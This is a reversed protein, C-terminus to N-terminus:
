DRRVRWYEWRGGVGDRAWEHRSRRMVCYGDEWWDGEVEVHPDGDSLETVRVGARSRWWRNLDAHSMHLAGPCQARIMELAERIAERCAPVTALYIPHFFMCMTTQWFAADSVARSLWTLDVGTEPSYGCEYAVIQFSLFDVRENGERWDARYWFPLATGFSYGLLNVPNMPPSGSHIRSNDAQLGEEAMWRAPEHWGSWLTCHTVACVPLEGYLERYAAVQQHIEAATVEHPHAFGDLFNFHLSPDHGARKLAAYQDASLSFGGERPMLNVHYPLGVETMFEAAALTQSALDGEDDGGWYFVAPVPEGTEGPPLPHVFWVEALAIVNRVLLTLLDAYPVDIRFPRIVIADSLRLYGDGDRDVSIPRGQRLCWLAQCLNFAFYCATGAGVPRLTAAPSHLDDGDVSYLHALERGQGRVVRVPAAIPLPADLTDASYLCHALEPDTLRLAAALSWPDEPQGIGAVTVIGFLDDLGETAMGVLLGGGEVWEQLAELELATFYGPSLDPLVLVRTEPLAEVLGERLVPDATLGMQDALEPMSAFWYNGGQGNALQRLSDDWLYRVPCVTV